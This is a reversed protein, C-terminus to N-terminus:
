VVSQTPLTMGGSSSKESKEQAKKQDEIEKRYMNLYTQTDIPTIRDIENLNYNMHKVMVYRIYYQEELNSNYLSKLLEFMSNDFVKLEISRLEDSITQKVSGFVPIKYTEDIRKIYNISHQLVDGPLNDLLENKEEITLSTLDFKEKGTDLTLLVDVILDDLNTNHLNLPLGVDISMNDIDSRISKNSPHNTVKDLIDYLDISVSNKIKEAGSEVKTMIELRDAISMIRINLLIVFKDVCNLKTIDIQDHCCNVILNHFFDVIQDTDNNQIFKIISLYSNNDFTNYRYYEGHSPVYVKYTFQQSM